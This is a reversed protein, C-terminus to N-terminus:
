YLQFLFSTSCTFFGYKRPIIWLNWENVRSIRGLNICSSCLVRKTTNSNTCTVSTVVLTIKRSQLTLLSANQNTVKVDYVGGDTSQLSNISLKNSANITKWLTGNKFWKYVNLGEAGDIKLNISLM